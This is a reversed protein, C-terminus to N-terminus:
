IDDNFFSKVSKGFESFDHKVEEKFEALNENQEDNLMNLKNQLEKEANKLNTINQQTQQDIEEGSAKLKMEFNEMKQNFEDLVLQAQQKFESESQKLNDIAASVDNMEKKLQQLNANIKEEKKAEQKCATFVSFTALVIAIGTLKLVDKM